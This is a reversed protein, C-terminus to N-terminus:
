VPLLDTASAVSRSIFEEVKDLEYGNTIFFERVIPKCNEIELNISDEVNVNESSFARWVASEIRSTIEKSLEIYQQENKNM